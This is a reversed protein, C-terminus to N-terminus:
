DGRTIETIAYKGNQKFYEFKLRVMGGKEIEIPETVIVSYYTKNEGFRFNEVPAINVFLATHKNYVGVSQWNMKGTVYYDDHMDTESVYVYACLPLCLAFWLMVVHLAKM